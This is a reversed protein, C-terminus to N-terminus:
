ILVGPVRPANPPQNPCDCRLEPRPRPDEGPLHLYAPFPTELLGAHRAAIMLWLDHHGGILWLSGRDHVLAPALETGPDDILEHLRNRCVHQQWRRPRAIDPDWRVPVGPGIGRVPWEEIWPTGGVVPPHAGIHATFVRLEHRVGSGPRWPGGSPDVAIGPMTDAITRIADVTTM